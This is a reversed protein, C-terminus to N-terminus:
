RPGGERSRVSGTLRDVIISARNGRQDDLLLTANTATGDARFRIAAHEEVREFRIGNPLRRTEDEIVTGLSDTTLVRYQFNNELIEVTVSYAERIALVRQRLLDDRFDSAAQNVESGRQWRAMAPLTLGALVTLVALVLLLEILTFGDRRACRSRGAAFLTAGSTECASAPRTMSRM